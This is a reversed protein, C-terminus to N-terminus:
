NLPYIADAQAVQYGAATLQQGDQESAYHYLVLQQQVAPQYEQLDTLGTHSPNSHLGCDHFIVEGKQVQHHIIEPIPRTDGSYFFLGPAYLAFSSLPAHHRSPFIEFKIGAHLFQETVPILQFADWFNKGGEAMAGPYCALRLHLQHILQVPVFLRVLPQQPNKEKALLVRIFLIELDAIHDLHNHSIYVADPLTQYRAQFRNIVGSGCDILLLAQQDQELVAAACGLEPNGGSGVGLFRLSYKDNTTTM